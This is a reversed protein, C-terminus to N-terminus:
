GGLWLAESLREVRREDLSSAEGVRTEVGVISAQDRASGDACAVERPRPARWIM